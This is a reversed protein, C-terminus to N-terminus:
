LARGLSEHTPSGGGGGGGVNKTPRRGGHFIWPCIWPKQFGLNRRFTLTQFCTPPKECFFDLIQFNTYHKSIPNEIRNWGHNGRFEKKSLFNRKPNSLINLFYCVSYQSYLLWFHPKPRKTRGPTAFFLRSQDM